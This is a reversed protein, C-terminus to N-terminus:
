STPQHFVLCLEKNEQEVRNIRRLDIAGTQEGEQEVERRRYLLYSDSLMFWRQQWHYIGHTKSKKQFYQPHTAILGRADRAYASELAPHGHFVSNRHEGSVRKSRM